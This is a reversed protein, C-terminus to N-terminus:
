KLYNEFEIIWDYVIKSFQSNEPTDGINIGLFFREIPRSSDRCNMILKKREPEQTGNNLTAANLLTGSLCACEGDYTSGNIRGELVSKKLHEVEKYGHLLVDWFDIKIPTLDSDRLNSGRLDSDRLNSGRLDSGRLDSGRLNSGRLDSGRLDSGRLDSGQKVAELLTKKITNNETEFEFLISGTWRNKIQLKM